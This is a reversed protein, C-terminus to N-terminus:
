NDNKLYDGVTKSNLVDQPVTFRFTSGKGIESEVSIMGDLLTVLRKCILLGLGTGKISVDKNEGLKGISYFLKEAEEKRIGAGTDKITFSLDIKEPTIKRYGIDLKISGDYTYKVANELLNDLIRRIKTSDGKLFNPMSEDYNVSFDLKKREIGANIKGCSDSVLETLEYEDAHISSEGSELKSYDRISNFSIMMSNTAEKIELVQDRIKSSSEEELIRDALITITDIPNRVERTILTMFEMQSKSVEKKINSNEENKFHRFLFGLMNMSFVLTIIIGFVLIALGIWLVKVTISWVDELIEKRERGAFFITDVEGCSDKHPIYYGYYANGGLDVSECFLENGNERLETYIDGKLKTGTMSNGNTDVVTTEMRVDNYFFTCVLGNSLLEESITGLRGTVKIKGKYIDGNGKQVFDGADVMTYSKSLGYAAMHIEKKVEEDYIRRVSINAVICSCAVLLVLPILSLGIAKLFVSRMGRAEKGVEIVEETTLKSDSDKM